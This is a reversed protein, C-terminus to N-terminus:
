IHRKMDIFKKEFYFYSVFSITLTLPVFAFISYFINKEFLEGTLKLILGHWAYIGYSVLGVLTGMKIPLIQSKNSKCYINSLLLFIILTDVIFIGKFSWFEAPSFKYIYTSHIVLSFSALLFLLSLKTNSRVQNHFPAIVAGILFHPLCSVINRGDFNWSYTKQAYDYAVLSAIYLALLYTTKIYKNKIYSCPFILLIALLYFHMEIGLTWFVGNLKYDQNFQVFFLQSYIESTSIPYAGTTIYTFVFSILSILIFLPYIRLFRHACFSVVSKFNYSYQNRLISCTIVYGSIGFFAWVAVRGPISFPTPLLNYTGLTHWLVVSMAFFGRAILSVDITKNALM